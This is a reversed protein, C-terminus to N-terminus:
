STPTKLMLLNYIYARDRGKEDTVPERWPLSNPLELFRVQTTTGDIDKLTVPYTADRCKELCAKIKAYKDVSKGEMTVMEKNAMVKAWIVDKRTPSLFTRIDLNLLIPTKATDDTVGILKFRMMTSVPNNTSSDVPLYLTHTRDTSTGVMNGINTYSSDQLKKYQIQWYIDADYTHGLTGTVKVWAKTDAKFRGHLWPTEFYGATLFNKNADNEIDGYTTPLPIYYLAEGATDSAIWLRKQYISSVWAYECGTLTIEQYTHWVWSTTGDVNEDRGCMIELKTSNDGIIWLYRDDAAVAFIRGTFASLNTCYLAPSIWENSTGSRLLGQKGAVYFIEGNWVLVARDQTDTSLPECEPALDNQVVGSSNLYYPKDEKRIYLAGSSSFLDLIDYYDQDIQTQASWATGSNLPNITSRITSNTDNGYLTSATTFVTKLLQLHGNDGTFETFSEGTTMYYYPHNYGLAIMLYSTGSVVFPELSTITAPFNTKVATFGDGTGNLKVLHTGFSMYEADNFTARAKFVGNVGVTNVLAGDDFYVDITVQGGDVKGEIYLRLRTAAVNLTRSVTLKTWTTATTGYSSYTSGVGDEIGIRAGSASIGTSYHWMTFTFAKSQYESNWTIEYYDTKTEGEGVVFKGAYSGTHKQTTSASLATTTWGTTGDEFGNNAFTYGNTLGTSPVAISSAGYSLFTRDKNRLDSGYSSFYRKPDAYDQIDLGFGSRYDALIIPLEEQPNKAVQDAQSNYFLDVLYQGDLEKYFPAGTQPDPICNFGIIDGAALGSASDASPSTLAIHHKTALFFNAM